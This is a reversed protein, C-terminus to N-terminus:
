ITVTNLFDLPFVTIDTFGADLLAQEVPDKEDESHEPIYDYYNFFTEEEFWYEAVKVADLAKMTRHMLATAKSVNTFGDADVTHLNNKRASVIVEFDGDNAELIDFKIKYNIFIPRTVTVTKEQNTSHLISLNIM